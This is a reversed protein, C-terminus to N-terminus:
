DYKLKAELKKGAFSLLKNLLYYAIGVVLLPEFFRYTSGSVITYRRMMDMIGISSVVSTEKTLTIFENVLAPLVNRVAQPIIIDKLIDKNSVGLAKAAEIQGPNVQEIGSRIIEALYAGSNLSFVIIASTFPTTIVGSLQPIAFHVFFLQFFVPTGRFIDIYGYVMKSLLGKKRNLLASVMGIISGMLAAFLSLGITYQLGELIWPIRNAIAGFDLNM